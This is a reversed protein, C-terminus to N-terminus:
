QASLFLIGASRAVVPVVIAPATGNRKRVSPAFVSIRVRDSTPASPTAPDNRHEIVTIGDSKDINLFKNEVLM